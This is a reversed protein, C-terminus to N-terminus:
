YLEVNLFLVNDDCVASRQAVELTWRDLADVVKFEEGLEALIVWVKVVCKQM